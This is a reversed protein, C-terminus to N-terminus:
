PLIDSSFSNFNKNMGNYLRGSILLNESNFYFELIFNLWQFIQIIDNLVIIIIQEKDEFHNEKKLRNTM